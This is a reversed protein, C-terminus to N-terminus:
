EAPYNRYKVVGSKYGTIRYPMTVPVLSYFFVYGNFAKFEYIQDKTVGEITVEDIRNPDYIGGTLSYRPEGNSSQFWDIPPLDEGLYYSDFKLEHLIRKENLLFLFPKLGVDSNGKIMVVSLGDVDNQYHVEPDFEVNPEYKRIISLLYNDEGKRLYPSVAVLVVAILLVLLAVKSGRKM